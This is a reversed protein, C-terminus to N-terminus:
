SRGGVAPIDTGESIIMCSSLVEVEGTGLGAILRKREEAPHRRESIRGSNGCQPLGRGDARRSLDHLL